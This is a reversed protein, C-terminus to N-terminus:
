DYNQCLKTSVCAFYGHYLGKFIKRYMINYFSFHKNPTYLLYLFALINNISQIYLNLGQVCM